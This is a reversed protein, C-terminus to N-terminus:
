TLQVHAHEPIIEGIAELMESKGFNNQFRYIEDMTFRLARGEEKYEEPTADTEHLGRELLNGLLHMTSGEPAKKLNMQIIKADEESILLFRKKEGSM